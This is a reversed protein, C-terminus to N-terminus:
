QRFHSPGAAAHHRVVEDYFWASVILAIVGPSDRLTARSAPADVLRFARNLSIGAYGHADQHVEGADLAMRLRIREQVPCSANHQALAAALRVPLRTVLWSKPVEPPILILVGDGRDEIVCKLWSIRARAFSQRLSKYMGDRIALQHDNTRAPDGFNEVDVIMISRHAAPQYM